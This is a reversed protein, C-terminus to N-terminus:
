EKNDKPRPMRLSRYYLVENIAEDAVNLLWRFEGSSSVKQIAEQAARLKADLGELNTM